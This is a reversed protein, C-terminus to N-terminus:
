GAESGRTAGLARQREGGSGCWGHQGVDALTKGDGRRADYTGAKVSGVQRHQRCGNSNGVAVRHQAFAQRMAGRPWGNDVDRQLPGRFGNRRSQHLRAVLRSGIMGTHCVQLAGRRLFPEHARAGAHHHRGDRKPHADVLGIDARDIM